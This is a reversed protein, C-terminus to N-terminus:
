DRDSASFLLSNQGNMFHATLQHIEPCCLNVHYVTDERPITFGDIFSRTAKSLTRGSTTSRNFIMKGGALMKQLYESYSRQHSCGCEGRHTISSGETRASFECREYTQNWFLCSSANFYFQQPDTLTSIVIEAHQQRLGASYLAM